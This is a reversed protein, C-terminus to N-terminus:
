LPMVPLMHADAVAPLIVPDLLHDAVQEPGAHQGGGCHRYDTTDKGKEPM